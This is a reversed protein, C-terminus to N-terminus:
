PVERWLVNGDKLLLAILENKMAVFFIGDAEDMCCSIDLSETNDESPRLVSQRVEWIKRRGDPSMCSFISKLRTITEYHMIVFCSDKLSLAVIKGDLFIRDNLAIGNHGCLFYQYENETKPCFGV